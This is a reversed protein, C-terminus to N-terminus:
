MKAMLVLIGLLVLMLGLVGAVAQFVYLVGCFIAFTIGFITWGYSVYHLKKEKDEM